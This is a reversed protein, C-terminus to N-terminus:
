VEANDGVQAAAHQTVVVEACRECIGHSTPEDGTQMQTGCWACVVRLAVRGDRTIRVDGSLMFDAGM